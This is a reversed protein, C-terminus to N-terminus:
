IYYSKFKGAGTRGVIGIKEGPKATFTVNKLVLDMGKRYRTGYSSFQIAGKDPWESPTIIESEYPAEQEIESYEKIREVAIIQSEIECSM